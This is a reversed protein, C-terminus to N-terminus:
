KLPQMKKSHTMVTRTIPLPPSKTAYFHGEGKISHQTYLKLKCSFLWKKIPVNYASM